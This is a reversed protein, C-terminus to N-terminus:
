VESSLSVRVGPDLEGLIERLRREHAPNAFSFLCCVAVAQVGAAVVRRLAARAADEDLPRVVEGEPGIREPVGVALERAVLPEARDDWLDYLRPRNQRGIVLLDRFGETTVLATRAGRRELVANTAVTTGHAILAVPPEGARRLAERVGREFGESQDEPTSPLKWVVLRGGHEVVVDTFTGGVDVGIRAAPLAPGM